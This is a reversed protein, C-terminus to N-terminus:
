YSINKFSIFPISMRSLSSIILIRRPTLPASSPFLEGVSLGAFEEAM